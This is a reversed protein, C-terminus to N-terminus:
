PQRCVPEDSADYFEATCGGCYNAECKAADSCQETECPDALCAVPQSGDACTQQGQCTIPRSRLFDRDADSVQSWPENHGCLTIWFAGLSKRGDATLLYDTGVDLAVGCAPGMAPAAVEVIDGPRTCGSFPHLVQVQYSTNQGDSRQSLVHVDFTDSYTHWDRALNPVVCSCARAMDPIVALSAALLPILLKRM